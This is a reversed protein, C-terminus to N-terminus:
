EKGFVADRLMITFPVKLAIAPGGIPWKQFNVIGTSLSTSHEIFM